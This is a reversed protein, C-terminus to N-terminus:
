KAAVEESAIKALAQEPTPLEEFNQAARRASANMAKSFTESDLKEWAEIESVHTIQVALGECDYAATIADFDMRFNPGSGFDVPALIYADGEVGVVSAVPSDDRPTLETGIEIM